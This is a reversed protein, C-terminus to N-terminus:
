KSKPIPKRVLNHQYSKEKLRYCAIILFEVLNCIAPGM